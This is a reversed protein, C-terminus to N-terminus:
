TAERFLTYNGYELYDARMVIADREIANVVIPEDLQIRIEERYPPTTIQRSKMVTGIFPAGYYIGSVKAKRDAMKMMETDLTRM